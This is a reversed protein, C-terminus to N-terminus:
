RTIYNLRQPEDFSSVLEVDDFSFDVNEDLITTDVDLKALSINSLLCDKFIITQNGISSAPDENEILIDFYLPTGNKIYDVVMERFVSTTYYITMNGSGSWGAPKHQAGRKGLAYFEESQM